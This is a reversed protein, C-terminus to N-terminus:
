GKVEHLRPGIMAQDFVAILQSKGSALSKYMGSSFGDDSAPVFTARASGGGRGRSGPPGGRGRPQGRGGGSRPGGGRGPGGGGGGGNNGDNNGGAGANPQADRASRVYTGVAQMM